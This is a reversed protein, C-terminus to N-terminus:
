RGVTCRSFTLVQSDCGFLVSCVGNKNIILFSSLVVFIHPPVRARRRGGAREGASTGDPGRRGYALACFSARPLFFVPRRETWSPRRNERANRCPATYAGNKDIHMDMPAIGRVGCARQTNKSMGLVCRTVMFLNPLRLRRTKTLMVGDTCTKGEVM